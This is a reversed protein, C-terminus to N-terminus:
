QIRRGYIDREFSKYSRSLKDDKEKNEGDGDQGKLASSDVGLKKSLIELKGDIESKLANLAENEEAGKGEQDEGDGGEGKLVKLEERIPEVAEDVAAKVAEGIGALVTERIEEETLDYEGGESKESREEGEKDKKKEDEKEKAPSGSEAENVLSSLSSLIGKLKELLEMSNESAEKRSFETTKKRGSLANKIKDLWNPEEAKLAFFKAKPVAPRNVVSVYAPVWDEGLDRLLTKKMAMMIENDNDASKLAARKIGMVSYGTLDGKEVSAWTSTNLRSGLIWSGKPLKMVEGDLAKVTMEEPLLYTEVPIGVNNLSHQLDINRYHEMWEHAVEEIKEATVSEGDSDIEGPILVAAYAIRKRANKFVIPGTLELGNNENENSKSSSFEGDELLGDAHYKMWGYFAEPNDIDPISSLEKICAEQDNNFQDWKVVAESISKVSVNPNENMFLNTIETFDASNLNKFSVDGSEAEEYEVTFYHGTNLEKIVASNDFAYIVEVDSIPADFLDKIKEPNTLTGM